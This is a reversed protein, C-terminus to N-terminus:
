MVGEAERICPRALYLCCVMDHATQAFPAMIGAVTATNCAHSLVPRYLLHCSPQLDETSWRYRGVESSPLFCSCSFAALNAFSIVFMSQRTGLGSSSSSFVFSQRRVTSEQRPWTLCTNHEWWGLRIAFPINVCLCGVISWINGPRQQQQWCCNATELRPWTPPENYQWHRFLITCLLMEIQMPMMFGAQLVGIKVEYIIRDPRQQLQQLSAGVRLTSGQRPCTHAENHEQHRLQIGSHLVVNGPIAM